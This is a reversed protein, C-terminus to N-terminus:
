LRRGLPHATTNRRAETTTVAATSKVPGTLGAAPASAAL